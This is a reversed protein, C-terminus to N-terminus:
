TKNFKTKPFAVDSPTQMSPCLNNEKCPNKQSKSLAPDSGSSLKLIFFSVQNLTQHFDSHPAPLQQLRTTNIHSHHEASCRKSSRCTLHLVRDLQSQTAEPWSSFFFFIGMVSLLSPAKPIGSSSLRAAIPFKPISGLQPIYQHARSTHRGALSLQPTATARVM